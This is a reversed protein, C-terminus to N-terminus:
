IKSQEDILHINHYVAEMSREQEVDLLSFSNKAKLSSILQHIIEDMLDGSYLLGSM